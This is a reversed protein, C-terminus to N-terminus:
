LCNHLHEPDFNHLHESDFSRPHESDFSRPHESGFGHPFTLLRVVLGGHERIRKSETRNLQFFILWKIPESRGVSKEILILKFPNDSVITTKEDVSTYANFFTCLYTLVIIILAYVILVFSRAFKKLGSEYM